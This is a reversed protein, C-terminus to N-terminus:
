ISAFNQDESFIYLFSVNISIFFKLPVVFLVRQSWVPIFFNKFILFCFSSALFQSSLILSAVVHLFFSCCCFALFLALNYGLHVFVVQFVWLSVILCALDLRNLELVVIFKHTKTFFLLMKNVWNTVLKPWWVMMLGDM